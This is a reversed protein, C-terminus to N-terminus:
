GRRRSLVRQPFARLEHEGVQYLVPEDTDAPVIEFGASYVASMLAMVEERQAGPRQALVFALVDDVPLAEELRSVIDFDAPAKGQM